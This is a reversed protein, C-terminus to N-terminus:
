EFGTECFLVQSERRGDPDALSLINLTQGDLRVRDKVTLDRDYRIELRWPQRSQLTGAIIAEKGGVPNAKAWAKRLFFWVPTQGGADNDTARAREFTVIRNLDGANLAM